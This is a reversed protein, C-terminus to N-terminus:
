KRNLSFYKKNGDYHRSVASDDTMGGAKDTQPMLGRNPADAVPTHDHKLAEANDCIYKVLSDKDTVEPVFKGLQQVVADVNCTAPGM